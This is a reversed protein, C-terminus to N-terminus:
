AYGNKDFNLPSEPYHWEEESYDNNNLEDDEVSTQKQTQKSYYRKIFPNITISSYILPPKLNSM